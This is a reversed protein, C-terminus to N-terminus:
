ESKAYYAKGTVLQWNTILTDDASGLSMALANTVVDGSSITAPATFTVKAVTGGTSGANANCVVFLIDGTSPNYFQAPITFGNLGAVQVNSVKAKPLTFGGAKVALAALGGNPMRTVSVIITSAGGSVVPNGVILSAEQTQTFWNGMCGLLSIALAATVLGALIRRVIARMCGGQRDGGFLATGETNPECLALALAARSLIRAYVDSLAAEEGADSKASQKNTYQRCERLEKVVHRAASQYRTISRGIRALFRM